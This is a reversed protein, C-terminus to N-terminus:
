SIVDFVATLCTVIDAGSSVMVFPTTEVFLAVPTNVGVGTAGAPTVNECGPAGPAAKVPVILEVPSADVGISAVSEFTTPLSRTFNVIMTSFVPLPTFPAKSTAIRSVRGAPNWIGVPPSPSFRCTVLPAPVDSAYADIPDPSKSGAPPMRSSSPAVEPLRCALVGVLPVFM